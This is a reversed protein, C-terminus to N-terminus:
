AGADRDADTADHGQSAGDRRLTAEVRGKWEGHQRVLARSQERFRDVSEKPLWVRVIIITFVLNDLSMLPFLLDPVNAAVIFSAACTASVLAFWREAWIALLGYSLTWAFMCLLHMDHPAIGAFWCGVALLAQCSLYLAGSMAIHRNLATKMMSERAWVFAACALLLFTVPVAVTLRRSDAGGGAFYRWGTLPSITWLAGFTAVLFSRTKSGTTRDLDAVLRRVRAESAALEKLAAEVRAVVDAPKSAVERLLAESARADGLELSRQAVALLAQDLGARAETNDPWASLAARYGFRCEGLLNAVDHDRADDRQRLLAHDLEAHRAKTETVLKRSGEHRIYENVATGFAEASEYRDAPDRAMARACIAVVEAPVADPFRIPSVLIHTVLANLDAGEHPPAGTFIEYLIAGLLYVDTRVSLRSPDGLLMEPAMYHPTGAVDTASAALPLRGTPDDHLSVAIGWDLVYVEGFSGIMVNEPKLDRHLIGRSHAFAVANCVSGLIELSWEVPDRAGFRRAVDGPSRLLEAWSQGEIRKMVIVPAGAADIGVDYIPVVNPHELTGTVWAERLIRLTAETGTGDTRTTKVAVHRGVSAQTALRVIGMGGEGLTRHLELKGELSAGRARLAELAGLGRGSSQHRPEITTGPREVLTKALAAGSSDALLMTVRAEITPGLGFLPDHDHPM